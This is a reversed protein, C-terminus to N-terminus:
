LTMSLPFRVSIFLTIGRDRPYRARNSSWLSVLRRLPMGASQLRKSARIQHTGQWFHIRKLLPTRLIIKVKLLMSLPPRMKITKWWSKDISASRTGSRRKTKSGSIAVPISGTLPGWTWKQPTEWNSTQGMKILKAQFILSLNDMIQTRQAVLPQNWDMLQYNKVLKFIKLQYQTLRVQFCITAIIRHFIGPPVKTSTKPQKSITSRVEIQQHIPLDKLQFPVRKSKTSSKEM